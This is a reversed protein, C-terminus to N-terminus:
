EIRWGDREMVGVDCTNTVPYLGISFKFKDMGLITNGSSSKGNGGKGVLILRLPVESFFLDKRLTTFQAPSQKCVAEKEDRSVNVSGVQHNVMTLIKVFDFEHSHQKTLEALAQIFYSGNKANRYSVYGPVTSYALLFDSQSPILRGYDIAADTQIGPYGAQVSNGQCAQIIFVKPKDCLSPCSQPCLRETLKRIEIPMGNSGYVEGQKGHSLICCVFCDFSSHDKEAAKSINRLMQTDSADEYCRVRFRLYKFLEKLKEKDAETGDRTELNRKFHKNNFILCLGRPYATMKYRPVRSHAGDTNPVDSLKQM